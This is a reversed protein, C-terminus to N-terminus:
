RRSARCTSHSARKFSQKPALRWVTICFTKTTDLALSSLAYLNSIPLPTNPTEQMRDLAYIADSGRKNMSEAQQKVQARALKLLLQAEQFDLAKIAQLVQAQYEPSSEDVSASQTVEHKDQLNHHKLPLKRDLLPRRYCAKQLVFLFNTLSLPVLPLPCLKLAECWLKPLGSHLCSLTLRLLLLKLNLAM